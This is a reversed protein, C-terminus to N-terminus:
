RIIFQLGGMPMVKICKNVVDLKVRVGSAKVGEITFSPEASAAHLSGTWRLLAGMPRAGAPVSLRIITNGLLTVGGTVVVPRLETDAAFDAALVAGDMFEVGDALSLASTTKAKVGAGPALALLGKVAGGGSLTQGPYLTPGFAGLSSFEAGSELVVERSRQQGSTALGRTYAPLELGYTKALTESLSRVEADSLVTGGWMRFEAVDVAAYQAREYESAGLLIRTNVIDSTVVHSSEDKYGDVFLMVKEGSDKKPYRAVVIHAEGNNLFRQRSRVTKAVDFGTQHSVGLRGAGSLM